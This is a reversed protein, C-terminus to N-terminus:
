LHMRARHQEVQKFFRGCNLCVGANARRRTRTLHGKTASHSREEVDRESRAHATVRRQRALDNRVEELEQKHTKAMYHQQHGLPCYWTGGHTLRQDRLSDPMGFVIGCYCCEQPILETTIYKTAVAM